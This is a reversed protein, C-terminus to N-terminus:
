LWQNPVCITPTRSLAMFPPWHLAQRHFGPRGCVLGTKPQVESHVTAAKAFFSKHYECFLTGGYLIKVFNVDNGAFTQSRLNCSITAASPYFPVGTSIPVASRLTRHPITIDVPPSLTPWDNILPVDTANSKGALRSSRRLSPARENDYLAEETESNQHPGTINDSQWPDEDQVLPSSM